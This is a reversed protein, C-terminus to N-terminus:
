HNFRPGWRLSLSVTCQINNFFVSFVSKINTM